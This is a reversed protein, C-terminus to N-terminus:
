NRGEDSKWSLETSAGHRDGRGIKSPGNEAEDIGIATVLSRNSLAQRPSFMCIQFACQREWERESNWILVWLIFLFTSLQLQPRYRRIGQRWGRERRVQSKSSGAEEEFLGMANKLPYPDPPYWSEELSFFTHNHLPIGARNMKLSLVSSWVYKQM